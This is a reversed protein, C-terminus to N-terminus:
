SVKKGDIKRVLWDQKIIISKKKLLRTLTNSSIVVCNVKMLEKEFSWKQKYLTLGYSVNQKKEKKEKDIM